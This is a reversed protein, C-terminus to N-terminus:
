RLNELAFNLYVNNLPCYGVEEVNKQGEGLIFVLFATIVPDSPKGMSGITLERCLNHPYIGLWLSRHAEKLNSFPPIEKREIKNDFDLDAPIIQIDRIKEGTVRDFAYSLNCFGISFPDSQISRIMEDDGTVVKGRLDSAKKYFFASWVEAAGSEDSRIFVSIKEKGGGEVVDGWFMPSGATFLRMFKEPSLGQSMLKEIFPNKLNVIPAVGDKAVPISWIGKDLEEDSLQRSIMALSVKGSLLDAIGESTGARTVEVKVGPNQEMFDSAMETILPYLAYAGSVTIQGKLGVESTGQESVTGPGSENNRCGAIVLISLFYLTAKSLSM